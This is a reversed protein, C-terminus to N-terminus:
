MGKGALRAALLGNAASKGVQFPKSMTGFMSKLGAAQAVALGLTVFSAPLLWSYNSNDNAICLLGGGLMFLGYIMLFLGHTITLMGARSWGQPGDRESARYDAVLMWSGRVAPPLVISATAWIPEQLIMLSVSLMLSPLVAYLSEPGAHRIWVRDFRNM